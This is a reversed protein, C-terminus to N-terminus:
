YSLKYPNAQTGDGEDINEQMELYLAPVVGLQTAAVSAANQNRNYQYENVKQGSYFGNDIVYLASNDGVNTYPTRLWYQDFFSIEEDLKKLKINNEIVTDVQEKSLIFVKGLNTDKIKSIETQSFDALFGPEDAYGATSGLEDFMLMVAKETPAKTTYKVTSSSSNLWEKLNSTNWDNSGYKEVSNRGIEYNGSEAADFAKYTLIKHSWLLLGKSDKTVIQWLIPENNYTGFQIYDGVGMDKVKRAEYLKRSKASKSDVTSSNTNDLAIPLDGPTDTVGYKNTVIIANKVQSWEVKAGLAEALHRAPVMTRGNIVTPPVDTNIVKGNVILKIASTKKYDIVNDDTFEHSIQYQSTVIVASRKQDWQVNAGLAEALFRAPLMTRGNLVKPPADTKVEKNNVILKLNQAYVDTSLGLVVTFAIGLMRKKMIDRWLEKKYIM